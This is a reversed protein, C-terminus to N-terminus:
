SNGCIPHYFLTNEGPPPRPSRALNTEFGNLMDVVVVLGWKVAHRGGEATRVPFVQRLLTLWNIVVFLYVTSFWRTCSATLLGRTVIKLSSRWPKILKIPFNAAGFYLPIRICKAANGSLGSSDSKIGSPM